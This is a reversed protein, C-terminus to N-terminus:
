RCMTELLKKLLLLTDMWGYFMQEEAQGIQIGTDLITDSSKGIATRVVAEQDIAPLIGAAPTTITIFDIAPAAM